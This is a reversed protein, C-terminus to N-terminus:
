DCFGEPIEVFFPVRVFDQELGFSLNNSSVKLGYQYTFLRNGFIYEDGPIAKQTDIIVAQGNKIM